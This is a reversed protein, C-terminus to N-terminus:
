TTFIHPFYEKEIIEVEDQEKTNSYDELIDYNLEIFTHGWRFKDLIDKSITKYDMIYLSAAIAEVTSLMGLKAYNTPNGALLAPLKRNNSFKKSTHIIQTAMKWSCDIACIGKFKERDKGILLTESFPNLVVFTSPIRKVERAMKFKVLRSATCKNPDDQRYMLVSLDIQSGGSNNM